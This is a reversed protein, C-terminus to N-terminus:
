SGTGFVEIETVDIFDCGSYPGPCPNAPYDSRQFVQPAVMTFRVDTVNATTGGNLTVQNLRGRDDPTFQGSAAAEFTTGDTSTEIKYDGTSASAGDGCNATPDIGMTTVDVARPLHITISKPTRASPQGDRGLNATSSWGNSVSQDIAAPPGCSRGYDPGDFATISAGGASAAWDRRLMWNRVRTGERVRVVASKTDYGDNSLAVVKPYRGVPVPGLSYRGAPGTRTSPNTAFPSGQWAVVVRVGPLPDGTISDRVIGRLGGIPTNPPPPVRFSEGPATDNGNLSGAYYGMGRHAFVRWLADHHKGGFVAMDALLVANREDLFSPNAPSLEMARTVLSESVGSGVRDRLDWLTQAWIEGDDHVEPGGGVRGYDGYTYGGRHGTLGGPCRKTRAGGKCDIPETRDLAVGAGDYRFLVVDGSKKQDFELGRRVLYDMAYWDSWAEGMAGAQVPGLTSRGSADVVLRNSLGHVYEHYVTDAEDGVNTPAFPDGDPYSTGPLHQLYLQMRPSTGDPPTAMNANDVHNADPLGDATDAGDDTQVQVADTDEGKGTFNRRQFNGAAETFGIPARLLHDHFQNVFYFAQAGNQDRNVQWSYPKNPNWSCPFPDRAQDCFSVDKLRFPKLEYAWSRPEVPRIEEGRNAKGDDNVDAYTHANNGHLLKAKGALWGRRSLNVPRQRGGHRAGPFYRYAIATADQKSRPESAADSELSRRYLIAGTASDIVQLAPHVASMTITEWAHRTGDLTQFLVARASDGPGASTPERLDSRAAAIAAPGSTVLDGAPVARLGPVPSGGISLLRGDRTVAAQLGNGFLPVGGASQVWSLHHIGEIDVYDRRLKLAAIDRTDLGFAGAHTRVYELAIGAAPASSRETLFGDLRAVQRPTGTLGDMDVVGQLGLTERLTQAERRTSARAARNTLVTRSHTTTGLRADYFGRARGLNDDGAATSVTARATSGATAGAQPLASAAPGAGLAVAATVAVLRRSTRTRATMSDEGSGAAVAPRNLRGGFGDCPLANTVGACCEAAAGTSSRM